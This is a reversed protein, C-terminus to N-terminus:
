RLMYIARIAEHVVVTGTWGELFHVVMGPEVEIVEGDDATYTARGAVFHCLEDRPLVLRWSGPTSIWIGAEPLGNDEGKWLLRGTNMSKGDIPELHGGWDKLDDVWTSAGAIHPATANM